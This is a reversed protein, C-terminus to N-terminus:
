FEFYRKIILLYELEMIQSMQQESLNVKIIPEGLTTKIYDILAIKTTIRAM